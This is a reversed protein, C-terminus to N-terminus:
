KNKRIKKNRKIACDKYLTIDPSSYGKFHTSQENERKRSYSFTPKCADNTIMNNNYSWQAIYNGINDHKVITHAISSQTCQLRRMTLASGTHRRKTYGHM